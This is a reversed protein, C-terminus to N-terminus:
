PAKVAPRSRRSWGRPTAARVVAPRYPAVPGTGGVKLHGTNPVIDNPEYGTGITASANLFGDDGGLMSRPVRFSLRKGSYTPTITGVAGGGVRYVTVNLDNYFIDV